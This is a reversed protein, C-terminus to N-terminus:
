SKLEREMEEIEKLLREVAADEEIGGAKERRARLARQKKVKKAVQYCTIVLIISLVILLWTQPKQLYEMLIDFMTKEPPPPPSPPQPTTANKILLHPQLLSCSTQGETSVIEIKEYLEAYDIEINVKPENEGKVILRIPRGAWDVLMNVSSSANLQIWPLVYLTGNKEDYKLGLLSPEISNWKGNIYVEIEPQLVTTGAKLHISLSYIMRSHSAPNSVNITTVAWTSNELKEIIPPQVILSPPIENELQIELDFPIMAKSDLILLTDELAIKEKKLKDLSPELEMKTQNAGHSIGYLSQALGQLQITINEIVTGTLSVNQAIEYIINAIENISPVTENGKRLADLSIYALTLNGLTHNLYAKLHPNSNLFTITEPANMFETLSSNALQICKQSFELTSDAMQLSSSVLLLSDALLTSNEKIQGTAEAIGELARGMQLTQNSLEESSTVFREMLEISFDLNNVMNRFYTKLTESSSSVQIVIPDIIVEGWSGVDIVDASAELTQSDNGLFTIWTIVTKDALTSTSNAEPSTKIGSFYDNSLALNITCFLTQVATRNDAIYLPQLKNQMTLRFSLTDLLNAKMFYLLEAETVKATEGNVSLTMNVAVPPNRLSEATYHYRVTKKAEITVNEWILRTINGFNEIISPLPTGYLVSLTSSNIMEIRDVLRLRVPSSGNNYIEFRVYVYKELLKGTPAYKIEWMEIKRCTVKSFENESKPSSIKPTVLVVITVLSLFVFTSVLKRRKLKM